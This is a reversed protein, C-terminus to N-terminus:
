LLGEGTGKPCNVLMERSDGLAVTNGPESGDRLPVERDGASGRERRELARM